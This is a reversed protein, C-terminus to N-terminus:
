SKTKKRASVASGFKRKEISLEDLLLKADQLDITDFGETFRAYIPNLLDHADEVRDQAHYLRGLSMAGRLEWSLAGQRNALVVSRRFHEEAADDAGQLALVDGKIRLAEPMWWFGRSKETRDLAESAAALGEDLRGGMVLVQALSSLLPTYFTVSKVKM